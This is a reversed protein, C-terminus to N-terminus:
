LYQQPKIIPLPGTGPLTTSYEPIWKSVKNRGTRKSAYLAQDSRDLLEELNRCSEDQNIVGLSITVSMNGVRTPLTADATSTRLREATRLAEEVTTEPLLIVFEEGGYRALIDVQRLNGKIVHALGQLVQDGIAHGYTDNVKKFHDIDLMIVSLPRQYRRSREFEQVATDYFKRRNYLGTLEDTIAMSQITQFLRANEIAVATNSALLQLVETDKEDYMNPTYSQASLVGIVGSSAKLPVILISQSIEEEDTNGVVIAGTKNVEELSFSHFLLPKGSSIVKGFLGKGIARTQLEVDEGKDRIFVDSILGKERDVLAISFYETKMLKKVAEYIEPYMDDLKMKTIISQGFEYLTKFRAASQVEDKYLRTNELAISVQDAFASVLRAHEANFKNYDHADLSLIGIPKGKITLPAGLWSCIEHQSQPIQTFNPFDASVNNVTLPQNQTFVIAGPNSSDLSYTMGMVPNEDKFGHGGVIELIKISERYLLVSASDYPVVFSLQELIRDIAENQDLTATVASGARSLKEAEDARRKADQFLRANQIAIIAQQAFSELLRIDDKSFRRNVDKDGVGIVGFLEDGAIMPIALGAHPVLEKYQEMSGEWKGYDAVTMPQLKEAVQGMLGEGFKVLLGVYNKDMNESVTVRLGNNEPEYLALEGLDANLLSIARIVLEKLLVSLDLEKNIGTLTAQLGDLEQIRRLERSYLRANKIALSAQDCFATLLEAHRQTYYDAEEKDLSFILEAKGDIVVPAGLWSRYLKTVVSPIWYPDKSTDTIIKAKLDRSIAKLNPTTDIPFSMRTLQEYEVQTTKQYGRSREIYAVGESVVMVNGGDYPVLRKLQDLLLDLVESYDLSETLKSGIDRLTDALKREEHETSFLRVRELAVCLSDCITHLLEIKNETIPHREDEVFNIVGTPKEGLYLPLSYHAKADFKLPSSDICSCGEFRRPTTFDGSLLEDVCEIKKQTETSFVLRSNPNLIDYDVRQHKKETEDPLILWVTQSKTISRVTELVPSLAGRLTTAQNLSESVRRITSLEDMRSQIVDLARRSNAETANLDQPNRIVVSFYHKNDSKFPSIFFLYPLKEGTKLVLEVEKSVPSPIDSKLINLDFSPSIRTLIQSKLEDYSFGTLLRAAYNSEIIKGDEDVVLLNQPSADYVQRIFDVDPSNQTPTDVTAVKKRTTILILALAFFVLGLGAILYQFNNQLFDALRSSEM